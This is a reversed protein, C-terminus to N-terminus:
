LKIRIWNIVPLNNSYLLIIHLHYIHLHSKYRHSDYLHSDTSHFCLICTGRGCPWYDGNTYRHFCHQCDSLNICLILKLACDIACPSTKDSCILKEECPDEFEAPKFFLVLVDLCSVVWRWGLCAIGTYFLKNKFLHRGKHLNWFKCSWADKFTWKSKLNWFMVILFCTMQQSNCWLCPAFCKVSVSCTIYHLILQNHFLNRFFSMARDLLWHIKKLMFRMGKDLSWNYLSSQQFPRQWSSMFVLYFFVCPWLFLSILRFM